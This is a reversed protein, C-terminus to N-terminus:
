EKEYTKHFLYEKMPKFGQKTKIIYDGETATYLPQILNDIIRNIILKGQSGPHRDKQISGFHVRMWQKLEDICMTNYQFQMAIIPKPISKKIYYKPQMMMGDPLNLGLDM